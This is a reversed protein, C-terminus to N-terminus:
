TKLFPLELAEAASPRKEPDVTLLTELFGIYDSPLHLTEMQERFSSDLVLDPVNEAIAWAM